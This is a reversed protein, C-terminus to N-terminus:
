VPSVERLYLAILIGVAVVIGLVPWIRRHFVRQARRMIRSRVQVLSLPRLAM